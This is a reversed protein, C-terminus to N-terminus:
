ARLTPPDRRDDGEVGVLMEAGVLADGGDDAGGVREGHQAAVDLDARLRALALQHAAAARRSEGGRRRGAARRSRRTNLTAPARSPRCAGRRRRRTSYRVAVERVGELGGDGGDLLVAHADDVAVVPDPEVTMATSSADPTTVRLHLLEAVREGVEEVERGVLRVNALGAPRERERWVRRALDLRTRPVGEGTGDDGGGRRRIWTGREGGEDDTGGEAGLTM